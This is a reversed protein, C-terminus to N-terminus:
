SITFTQSCYFCSTNSKNKFLLVKQKFHFLDKRVLPMFSTMMTMHCRLYNSRVHETEHLWWKYCLINSHTIIQAATISILSYWSHAHLKTEKNRAWRNVDSVLFVCHAVFSTLSKIKIFTVNSGGRKSRVFNARQQTGFEENIKLQYPLIRDWYAQNYIQQIYSDIELLDNM